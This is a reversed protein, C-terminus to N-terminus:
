GRQDGKAAADIRALLERSEDIAPQGDVVDILRRLLAEMEPAAETLARVRPSRFNIGRPSRESEHWVVPYGNADMLFDVHTGPSYDSDRDDRWRWPTEARAAVRDREAAERYLRDFERRRRENEGLEPRSAVFPVSDPAPSDAPSSPEPRAFDHDYLTSFHDRLTRGCKACTERWGGRHVPGTLRCERDGTPAIMDNGCAACYIGYPMFDDSAPAGCCECPPTGAPGSPKPAAREVLWPHCLGVHGAIRVCPGGEYRSTPECPKGCLKAYQKRIVGVDYGAVIFDHFAGLDRKALIPIPADRRAEAKQDALMEAFTIRASTEEDHTLVPGDDVAVFRYTPLLPKM